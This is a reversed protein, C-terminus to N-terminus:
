KHEAIITFLVSDFYGKCSEWEKCPTNVVSIIRWGDEQLAVLKEDLDRALNHVLGQKYTRVEFSRVM